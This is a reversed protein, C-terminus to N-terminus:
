EGGRMSGVRKWGLGVWWDMLVGQRWIMFGKMVLSGARAANGRM